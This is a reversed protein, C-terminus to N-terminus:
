FGPFFREWEKMFVLSGRMREERKAKANFYALQKAELAGKVKGANTESIKAKERVMTPEPHDDPLGDRRLEALVLRCLLVDKIHNGFEALGPKISDHFEILLAELVKQTQAIIAQHEAKLDLQHRAPPYITRQFPQM